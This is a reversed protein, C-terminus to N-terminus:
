SRLINLIKKSTEGDGYPCPSNIQYNSNISEFLSNMLSPEKCLFSHIGLSEQRETEKRCVIVKKNFYSAEEQIGGSDSIILRCKSIKNVMKSYPLPDVVNLNALINKHKQIAPNPHLPITFKLDHYEMALNNIETFWQQLIPLNERRHLTVLVEKSYEPKIGKLNDLVTNGVVYNEGQCKEKLLNQRNNETVCFNISSIRSVMQRYSEEPYPNCLDYTRLGAELHILKIRKNYAWLAMGFTSATDGQVLVYEPKFNLKLDLISSIINNLRDEGKRIKVSHDHRFNGIHEHQGTYLIKFPILGEFAEILPKLKIWEPRTGYCILITKEVM